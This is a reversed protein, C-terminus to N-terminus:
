GLTVPGRGRVFVGGITQAAARWCRRGFRPTPRQPEDDDVDAACVLGGGHDRRMVTADDSLFERGSSSLSGVRPLTTGPNRLAPRQTISLSYGGPTVNLRWPRSWGCGRANGHPGISSRRYCAAPLTHNSTPYYCFLWCGGPLGSGQHRAPTTSSYGSSPPTSASFTRCNSEVSHPTARGSTHRCCGQGPQLM